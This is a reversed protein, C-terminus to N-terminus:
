LRKMVPGHYIRFRCSVPLFLLYRLLTTKKLLSILINAYALKRKRKIRYLMLDSRESFVTGFLIFLILSIWLKDSFKM